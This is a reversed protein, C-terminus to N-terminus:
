RPGDARTFDIYYETGQEFQEFAVPNNIWMDISGTPTAQWFARNEHAPDDSYVPALTVRRSYIKGDTDASDQISQVKFKARVMFDGKTRFLAFFLVGLTFAGVAVCFILLGIM